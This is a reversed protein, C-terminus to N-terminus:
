ADLGMTFKSMSTFSAKGVEAFTGDGQNVYYYDDEHFDNGVYIDPYGDVNFDAITLGLGYSNIGGYINAEASVDVFKSGDNRLLKGGSEYTRTNRLNAHGFSGSTHVAHCLLFIDLDGDLDYDLFAAASSYAEFDLEYEASRETFTNDGNNIYLENHGDLNKLGVVACVYIDLLGDGNVDGMAAGTNWTSNGAVGATETIDEFQLNGRNLYLKNKVQNGTFFIDPLGDGNIDGIAVGGGNYYYIYDIINLDETPKLTNEFDIGASTNDLKDFLRQDKKCASVLVVMVTARIWGRWYPKRMVNISSIM